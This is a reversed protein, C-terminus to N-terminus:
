SARRRVVATVADILPRDSEHTVLDVGSVRAAQRLQAEHSEFNKLYTKRAVAAEILRPAEGELGKFRAWTRFPFTREDPHLLRMLVVEHRDHRLRALSKALREAPLFFDSIVIVLGRRDMRDAVRLLETDIVTASRPSTSELLDIVRTLQSAVSSPPLWRDEGAQAVSLGASETQKLMLFCLAAALRAAYDFKTQPRGYAMSGSADLVVAARLNTEEDYEKVFVRDSRALLRWDIRRPEDGPTYVRHQRFEVSAGKIPSRHLGTATGEVVRRAGISLPSLLEVLQPDLLRGIANM